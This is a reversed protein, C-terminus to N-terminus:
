SDQKQSSVVDSQSSVMESISSEASHELKKESEIEEIVRNLNRSHDSLSELVWILKDAHIRKNFVHRWEAENESGNREPNKRSIWLGVGGSNWLVQRMNILKPILNKLNTLASAITTKKGCGAEKFVEKTLECQLIEAGNAIALEKQTLIQFKQEERLDCM